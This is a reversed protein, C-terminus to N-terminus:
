QNCLLLPPLDRRAHWCKGGLRGALPSTRPPRPSSSATTRLRLAKSSIGKASMIRFARGVVLGGGVHFTAHTSKAIEYNQKGWVVLLIISSTEKIRPGRFSPTAVDPFIKSPTHVVGITIDYSIVHSILSIDFQYWVSIMHYWLYIVDKIQFCFACFKHYWMSIVHSIVRSKEANKSSDSARNRGSSTIDRHSILTIDCCTWM